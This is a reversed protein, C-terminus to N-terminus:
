KKEKKDQVAPAPVASLKGKLVIPDLHAEAKQTLRLQQENWDDLLDDDTRTAAERLKELLEMLEDYAAYCAGMTFWRLHEPGPKEFAFDDDQEPAALDRAIAHLRWSLKEIDGFSAAIADQAEIVTMREGSM